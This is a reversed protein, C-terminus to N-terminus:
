RDQNIPILHVSEKPITIMVTEGKALKDRTTVTIEFGKASVIVRYGFRERFVEEVRGRLDDGGSNNSIKIREPRICAYVLGSCTANSTLQLGNELQIESGSGNSAANGKFINDFGVLTATHYNAPEEFIREPVGVEVIKGQDMVAIQDALMYAEDWEHTVHIVPVNYKEPIAKFVRIITRKTEPDLMSLPEDLLLVKPHTVLARALSVRQQEGGSLTAAYRSLLGEIGLESAMQKALKEREEKPIDRVRLGFEINGNVSLHDFSIFTQSVYGINRKEPPAASIDQDDLIIKGNAAYAGAITKLLTTKGSGTRGIVILYERQNVTLNLPGLNFDGLTLSIDILKLM